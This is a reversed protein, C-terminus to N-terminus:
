SGIGLIECIRDRDTQREFDGKAGILKTTNTKNYASKHVPFQKKKCQKSSKDACTPHTPAYFISMKGKREKPDHLIFGRCDTVKILHKLILAQISQTIARRSLGTKQEFQHNSIRDKLKRQGKRNIWGYTQRYIVLLVKVESNTLQPLYTDFFENPIHTTTKYNM